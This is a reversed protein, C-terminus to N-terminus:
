KTKVTKVKSWTSYLKKGRVVKYTRIKGYYKKGSKLKKVTTTNKKYGKINITKKNKTFKKNTALKIQYGTIRSKSMKKSQKKWKIVVGKKAKKLKKLTTGKPNITYTAETVGTLKGKGIIIMTYSGVNKSSRGFCKPMYITYDTGEQVKIGKITLIKPKRTKGNYTFKTKSLKVKADTIGDPDGPEVIVDFSVTDPAAYNSSEYKLDFEIFVSATGEKLGTVVGKEDVLAIDEDDNEFTYKLPIDVDFEPTIVAQEGVKITIDEMFCEMPKRAITGPREMCQPESDVHTDDGIAKYWIYYTGANVATPIIPSFEGTPEKENGIAYQIQGNEAVGPSILKQEKGDYELKKVKEPAKTVVATHLQLEIIKEGSYEGASGIRIKAKHNAADFEVCEMTYDNGESLNATKAVVEGNESSPFYSISMDQRVSEELEEITDCDYSQKLGRINLVQDDFEKNLITAKVAAPDKYFDELFWLDPLVNKQSPTTKYSAYHTGALGSGKEVYEAGFRKTTNKHLAYENFWDSYPVDYFDKIYTSTYLEDDDDEERYDYTMDLCRGEETIYAFEKDINPEFSGTSNESMIFTNETIDAYYAHGNINPIYNITHDLYEPNTRVYRCPLDAAHCLDAYFIAIGACVSKEDEKMCGYSDWQHSYYDFDYGGSWFDGDYEVRKNAWIALTYYKELDSMNDNLIENVVKDIETITYEKQDVTLVFNKEFTSPDSHVGSVHQDDTRRSKTLRKLREPASDDKEFSISKTDTSEAKTPKTPAVFLSAAFVLTFLLVFIRKSKKM